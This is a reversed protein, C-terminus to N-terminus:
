SPTARPNCAPMPRAHYCIGLRSTHEYAQGGKSGRSTQKRELHLIHAVITQESQEDFRLQAMWLGVLSLEDVTDLANAGQMLASSGSDALPPLKAEEGSSLSGPSLDQPLLSRRSLAEAPAAFPPLPTSPVTAGRLVQPPQPPPDPTGSARPNARKPGTARVHALQAEKNSRAAAARRTLSIREAAATDASAVDYACIHAVVAVKRVSACLSSSAITASAEASAARALADIWLASPTPACAFKDM